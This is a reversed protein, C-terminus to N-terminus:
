LLGQLHKRLFANWIQLWLKIIINQETLFPAGIRPNSHFKQAKNETRTHVTVKLSVRGRGKRFYGWTIKTIGCGHQANMVGVWWVRLPYKICNHQSLWCTQHYNANYNNAKPGAGGWLIMPWCEWFCICLMLVSSSNISEIWHCVIEVM